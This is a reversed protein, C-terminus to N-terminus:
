YKSKESDDSTYHKAEKCHIANTEFTGEIEHSAVQNNKGMSSIMCFMAYTMYNSELSAM